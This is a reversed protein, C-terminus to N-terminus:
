ITAVLDLCDISGSALAALAIQGTIKLHKALFALRQALITQSRAYTCFDAIKTPMSGGCFKLLSAHDWLTYHYWLWFIIIVVAGM